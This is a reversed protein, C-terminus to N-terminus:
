AGTEPKTASIWNTKLPSEMFKTLGPLIFPMRLRQAPSGAWLGLYLYLVSSCGTLAFRQPTSGLPANPRGGQCNGPPHGM